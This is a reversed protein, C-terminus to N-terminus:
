LPEDFLTKGINKEKFLDLQEMFRKFRREEDEFYKQTNEIGVFDFGYEFCAIRNSGSGLYTDLINDGEKAFEELLWKYLVIPKQNPHIKGDPDANVKGYYPLEICISPKKFSTWAIEGDSFNDLSNKKNWWVM